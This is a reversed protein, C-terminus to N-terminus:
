PTVDRPRARWERKREADSRRRKKIELASPQYDLWDPICYEDDVLIWLGARECSAAQSPRGLRAVVEAPIRGDTLHRASWTASRVWLGIAANGARVVKPHDYFGDDVRFWPV